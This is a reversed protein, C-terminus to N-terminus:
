PEIRRVRVSIVNAQRAAVVLFPPVVVPDQAALQQITPTHFRSDLHGPRLFLVGVMPARKQFAIAGFDADHTVVAAGREFAAVLVAEDTAGRLEDLPGVVEFGAGRMIAALAPDVSEDALFRAERLRM